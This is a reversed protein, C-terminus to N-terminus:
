QLDLSTQFYLRAQGGIRVRDGALECLLHGGRASLQRATLATKGLRLSWYPTLECQASGTVPDEPIGARPAFCRCVYDENKGPATAIIGFADMKKMADFDPTLNRVIEADGFVAIIDRSILVESPLVGLAELLHEPVPTQLPPWSPFDLWLTEGKREVSLPGSHSEFQIRDEKVKKERFLVYAAALTAHGCLSVEVTPSFWRIGFNKRAPVIFATESLNNEAAIQQM